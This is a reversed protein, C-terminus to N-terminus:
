AAVGTMMAAQDALFANLESPDMTAPRPELQRVAALAAAFDCDDDVVEILGRQKFNCAIEWQHDDYHEGLAFRRPIV